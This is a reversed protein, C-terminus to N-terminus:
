VDALLDRHSRLLHAASPRIWTREPIQCTPDLGQLAVNAVDLGRQPGLGCDLRGLADWVGLVGLNGTCGWVGLRRTVRVRGADRGSRHARRVRVGDLRVPAKRRAGRRCPGAARVRSVVPIAARSRQARRAATPSKAAVAILIVNTSRQVSVVPSRTSAKMPRPASRSAQESMYWRNLSRIRAPEPRGPAPNGGPAPPGGPAQRVRRGPTGM